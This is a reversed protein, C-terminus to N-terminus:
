AYFAGRMFRPRCIHSGGGAGVIVAKARFAYCDGNRV